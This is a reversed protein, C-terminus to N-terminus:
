PRVSRLTEEVATAAESIWPDPDARLDAVAGRVKSDTAVKEQDAQRPFLDDLLESRRAPDLKGLDSGIYERLRKWHWYRKVAPYGFAALAVLTLCAVAGAWLAITKGRGPRM